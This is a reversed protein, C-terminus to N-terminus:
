RNDDFSNSLSDRVVRRKASSVYLVSFEAIVSCTFTYIKAVRLTRDLNPIEFSCEVRGLLM